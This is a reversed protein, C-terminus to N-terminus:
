ITQILDLMPWLMLLAVLGVLTGAALLLLPELGKVLLNMQRKRQESLEREVALLARSLDGTMEAVSIALPLTEDLTEAQLAEGLPRGQLVKERIRACASKNGAHLPLQEQVELAQLLPMGGDLLLGLTAVWEHTREVILLRRLYPVKFLLGQWASSTGVRRRRGLWVAIGGMALLAGSLEPFFPSMGFLVGTMGRVEIGMDAYLDAFRPVVVGFLFLSLIVLVLGVLLPYLMAQRRERRWKVQERCYDASRFLSGALDGGHEGVEVLAQMMLPAKGRKLTVSLPQGARLREQMELLWFREKGSARGELFALAELLPVGGDLLRALREAIAGWAAVDMRGTM